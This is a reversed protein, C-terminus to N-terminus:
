LVQQLEDRSHGFEPHGPTQVGNAFSKIEDMSVDEFGSLHLLAYFCQVAQGASFFLVTVTLRLKLHLSSQYLSLNNQLFFATHWRLREWLWVQTVQIILPVDIGLFRIANVSLNSM